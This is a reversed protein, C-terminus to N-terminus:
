IREVLVGSEEGISAAGVAVSGRRYGSAIGGRFAANVPYKGFRGATLPHRSITMAIPLLNGIAIRSLADAAIKLLDTM